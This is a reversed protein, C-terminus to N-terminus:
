IIIGFAFFLVISAIYYLFSIVGLITFLCRWFRPGYWKWLRLFQLWNIFRTFLLIVDIVVVIIAPVLAQELIAEDDTGGSSVVSNIIDNLSLIYILVGTLSLITNFLFLLGASKKLQHEPKIAKM